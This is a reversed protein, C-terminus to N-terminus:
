VRRSLDDIKAFENILKLEKDNIKHKEIYKDSLGKHANMHHFIVEAIGLNEDNLNDKCNVLWYMSSINEHGTFRAITHEDNVFEKAVFKGLDHFKAVQVLEKDNTAEANKITLDIHEQVTEKHYSSDHPIDEVEFENKFDDITYNTVIKFNNCDVGSKPIQLNKYMRKISYEPVVADGTRQANQKLIVNLPVLFLLIAVNANKDLSKINKYLGIRRKRSLNTADYYVEDFSNEKVAAILRKNMTEFVLQNNEQSLKDFLEKRIEDSSLVLSNKSKNNKIYSSKGSGAVGVVIYIDM